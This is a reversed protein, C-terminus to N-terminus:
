RATSWRLDSFWSSLSAGGQDTDAALAVAALPPMGPGYEAGFAQQFDAGLDRDEDWWAGPQASSRIVMVQVRGTYPSAMLTGAPVRPDAVYCLTAAPLTPDYLARAMRLALAQGTPVRAMPYDFMLYLRLSFDDGAKQGFAGSTSPWADTRWRWALRTPRQGAPLRHVLSSASRSSDIRLVTGAPGPVMQFRNGEISRIRQEHWGPPLPGGPTATAFLSTPQGPSQSTAAVDTGPLPASSAQAQVRASSGCVAAACGVLLLQRRNMLRAAAHARQGPEIGTM